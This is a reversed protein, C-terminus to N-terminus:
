INLIISKFYEENKLFNVRFVILTSLKMTCSNMNKSVKWFKGTIRDLLFYFRKCSNAQLYILKFLARYHVCSFIVKRRWVLCGRSCASLM